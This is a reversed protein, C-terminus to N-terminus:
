EGGIRVEVGEDPYEEAATDLVLEKEESKKPMVFLLPTLPLLTLRLGLPPPPLLPLTLCGAPLPPLSLDLLLLM